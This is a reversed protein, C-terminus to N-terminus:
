RETEFNETAFLSACAYMRLHRVSKPAFLFFSAGAFRTRSNQERFSAFFSRDHAM